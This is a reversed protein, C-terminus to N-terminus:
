RSRARRCSSPCGPSRGTSSRSGRRRSCSTTPTARPPTRAELYIPKRRGFLAHFAAEDKALPRPSGGVRTWATQPDVEILVTLAREKLTKRISPTEVAGGGLALVAPRENCLAQVTAERELLRFEAEGRQEFLEPISQQMSRELERDLDIFRRGLKQAAVMGLTSKGAGMFGILAVHRDLAHAV